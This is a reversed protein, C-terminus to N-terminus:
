IKLPGAGTGPTQPQHGNSGNRGNGNAKASPLAQVNAPDAFRTPPSTEPNIQIAARSAKVAMSIERITNQLITEVNVSSRIQAAIQNIQIERGALRRTEELLRANDLALAAQALADVAARRDTMSWAPQDETRRLRLIGLRSGRLEIPLELVHDDEGGSDFAPAEVPSSVNATSDYAFQIPGSVLRKQWAHRINLSYLTELEQLSRRSDALLRSNDIALAVQDALIQLIEIDQPSFAAPQTSQVDLVGIVQGRALLPLAAESRTDPLDPNNFYVADDGVDVAIRPARASAAFGVIGTQGVKLRHGRLLMRRGGDSAAAKLVAYDGTENLLFLGAHYFGFRDSILQVTRDLLSQLAPEGAGGSVSPDTQPSTEVSVRSNAERSVEAAVQLQVARKELAETREQIREELGDILGRLRDTMANFALALRGIEDSNRVPATLRLNGEAIATATGTLDKIPQTFQRVILWSLFMMLFSGIGISVWAVRQYLSTALTLENEPAEVVAAWGNPLSSISARRAVGDSTTYYHIGAYGHRLWRVPQYDSLTTTKDAFSSKPFPHDDPDVLFARGIGAYRATEVQLSLDDLAVAMFLAGILQKDPTTIPAGIILDTGKGDASPVMQNVIVARAAIRKVLELSLSDVPPSADNQAIVKGDLNMVRLWLTNPNAAARAELLAHLRDLNPNFGNRDILEPAAALKEVRRINPELWQRALSTLSHGATALANSTVTQIQTQAQWTLFLSAGVLVPLVSALVLITLRFQLSGRQLKPESVMQQFIAVAFILVFLLSILITQEAPGVGILFRALRPLYKVAFSAAQALLLMRSLTRGQAPVQRDFFAFYLLLLAVATTIVNFDLFRLPVALVGRIIESSATFGGTYLAPDPGTYFLPAIRNLLPNAPQSYVLLDFLTLAGPLGALLYILWGVWRRARLWGPRILIIITILIVPQIAPNTMALIAAPTWAQSLNIAPVIAGIAFSSAAFLLLLFSVSRNAPHWFNLALVYLALIFEILALVYAILTTPAIM